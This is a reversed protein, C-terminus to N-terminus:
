LSIEVRGNRVRAAYTPISVTPDDLCQGTALAFNQKYIPSAIKPIGNRDGVIARSLVMAKSFPDFNAIAYVQDGDGIRFVAVQRSRILACVGTDPLIDDLACVDTWAATVPAPPASAPAVATNMPPEPPSTLPDRDM